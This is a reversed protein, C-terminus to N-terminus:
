SLTAKRQQYIYFKRFNQSSQQMNHPRINELNAKDSGWLQASHEMMAYLSKREKRYM